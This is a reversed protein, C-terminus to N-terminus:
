VVVQEILRVAFLVWTLRKFGRFTYLDQYYIATLDYQHHTELLALKNLRPRLIRLRLLGRPRSKRLILYHARAFWRDNQRSFTTARTM